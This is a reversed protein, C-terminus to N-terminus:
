LGLPMVIAIEIVINTIIKTVVEIAIKSRFIFITLLRVYQDKIYLHISM